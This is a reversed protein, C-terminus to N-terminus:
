INRSLHFIIRHRNKEKKMVLMKLQLLLKQVYNKLRTRLRYFLSMESLNLIFSVFIEISDIQIQCVEIGRHRITNSNSTLIRFMSRIERMIRFLDKERKNRIILEQESMTSDRSIAYNSMKAANKPLSLPMHPFRFAFDRRLHEWKLRKQM